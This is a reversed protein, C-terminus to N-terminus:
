PLFRVRLLKIPCSTLCLPYQCPNCVQGAAWGPSPSTGYRWVRTRYRARLWTPAIPRAVTSTSRVGRRSAKILRHVPAWRDLASFGGKLVLIPGCSPDVDARTASGRKVTHGSAKISPQDARHGDNRGCAGRRPCRMSTYACLSASRSGCGPSSRISQRSGEGMPSCQACQHRACHQRGRIIQSHGM